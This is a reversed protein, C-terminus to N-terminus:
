EVLTIKRLFRRVGANEGNALIIDQYETTGKVKVVRQERRSLKERDEGEIYWDRDQDDTIVLRSFTATGVLRVRGSVTIRGKPYDTDKQGLAMLGSAAIVAFFIMLFVSKKTPQM